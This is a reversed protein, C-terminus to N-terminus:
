RKPGQSPAAQTAGGTRLNIGTSAPAAAQGSVPMKAANKGAQFNTALDSVGKTIDGVTNKVGQQVKGVANGAKYALEDGAGRGQPIAPTAKPAPSTQPTQMQQPQKKAIPGEDPSPPAIGKGATFIDAIGTDGKPRQPDAEKVLVSDLLASLEEDLMYDTAMPNDGAKPMNAFQKKERNLDNGQRIIRDVNEYEEAPTNAYQTEREEDMMEEDRDIMAVVPRDSSGMGALKLMSLLEEAKEGQASINVSKTGDSSMNTSVNLRDEMDMGMDGCEDVRSEHLGALLALESLQQDVMPMAMEDFKRDYGMNSLDSEFRNGVWQFPDGERAKAVGYPMEGADVYYDYLAEYLDSDLDDGNLFRKTEHKFRTVIHELNNGAELMISESVKQPLGKHKTAAFDKADKKGMTKAVKKLEPSAGKVKEGKQMAHVMGMFKQQQQSVAKEVLTKSEDLNKKELGSLRLMDNFAEALEKEIDQNIEQDIENKEEEKFATTAQRMYNGPALDAKSYDQTKVNTDGALKTGVMGGGSPMSSQGGAGMSAGATSTYSSAGTGPEEPKEAGLAVGTPSTYSSQNTATPAAPETGPGTFGISQATSASTTPMLDPTTQTSVPKAGGAAGPLFAANGQGGSPDQTTGPAPAAAQQKADAKRAAAVRPDIAPAASTKTSSTPLAGRGGQPTLTTPKTTTANFGSAGTGVKKNQGSDKTFAPASPNSPLAAAGAASGTGGRGGRIAAATGPTPASGAASGTGGRGSRVAAATGPTPASTAKQRAAALRPDETNRLSYQQPFSQENLIDSYMRLLKPDMM